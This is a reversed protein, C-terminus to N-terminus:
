KALGEVIFLRSTAAKQRIPAVARYEPSDEFARAAALSPFEVVVVRSGPPAGELPVTQGGRALYNGGYRAIIAPTQAAYAKYGEADKVDIEGLVYAKATPANAAHLALAGATALAFGGCAAAIMKREIM